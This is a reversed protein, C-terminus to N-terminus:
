LVVLLIDVLVSLQVLMFKLVFFSFIDNTINELIEDAVFIANFRSTAWRM